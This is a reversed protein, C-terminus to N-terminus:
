SLIGGPIVWNLIAYMLIFLILAIVSNIIVTTSKQAQAANGQATLRLIGGYVIGGVVAIGVGGALFRLIAKLWVVIINNQVDGGTDAKICNPRSPDDPNAGVGITTYIYGDPCKEVCEGNELVENQACAYAPSPSFVLNVGLVALLVIIISLPTTIKKINIM